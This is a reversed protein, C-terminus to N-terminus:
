RGTFNQPSATSERVVLQCPLLLDSVAKGALLDMVMHMAQRGMEVQPQHITTLAPTVYWSAEIDDFGVVSLDGPVSIGRERAAVLVGIATRDNYCFVATAGAEVLCPLAARGNEVDERTEPIIILEPDVPVGARELETLYGNLRRQNSPPRFGSGIYGIRRHGLDLLHRVAQRAGGEDDASVSYLYEGSAQSNILVIPVGLEQLRESYLHGVRSALVIVGDVRRRHFTEVVAMEREPDAHSSCLFVSYGLGTAIDEIGEVIRDVFPDSITTVVLGLTYTRRTVLSRAVLSPTYGMEEAIRRIRERTTPSIRGTGKLARSVTSHSVGAARAIDKISVHPRTTKKRTDSM